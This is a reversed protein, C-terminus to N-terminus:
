RGALQAALDAAKDALTKAFLLNKAHMADQAKVAWSKATDYQNRADTNLRQYDIRGLDGLARSVTARISREVEGEAAAPTTQLTTPPIAPRQPEETPKPAEISLDPKPPEPKTDTKPPEARQPTRTRQPSRHAPEEPLSMPEPMEADTPEVDRPPPEPMELAPTEPAVKAHTRACGSLLLVACGAAAPWVVRRVWTRALTMLESQGCIWSEVVSSVPGWLFVHLTEDRV